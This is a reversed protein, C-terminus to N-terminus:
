AKKEIQIQVENLKDLKQKRIMRRYEPDLNSIAEAMKPSVILYNASGKLTQKHIINSAKLVKKLLKKSDM